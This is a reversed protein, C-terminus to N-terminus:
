DRPPRSWPHAPSLPDCDPVAESPLPDSLGKPIYISLNLRYQAPASAFDRHQALGGLCFREETLGATAIINLVKASLDYSAHARPAYVIGPRPIATKAAHLRRVLETQSIPEGDWLIENAVTPVIRHVPINAPWIEPGEGLGSTVPLDIMLAHTPPRQLALFVMALVAFLMAAPTFNPLVIPRGHDFPPRPHYRPRIRDDPM